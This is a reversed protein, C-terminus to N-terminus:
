PGLRTLHWSWISRTFVNMIVALYVFETLLRVSTIDSV